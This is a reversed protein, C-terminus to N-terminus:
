ESRALFGPIVAHPIESLQVQSESQIKLVECSTRGDNQRSMTETDLFQYDSGNDM